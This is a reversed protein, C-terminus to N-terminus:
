EPTASRQLENEVKLAKYTPPNGTTFFDGQLSDAVDDAPIWGVLRWWSASCLYCGDGPVYWARRCMGGVQNRAKWGGLGAGRIARSGIKKPVSSARAV